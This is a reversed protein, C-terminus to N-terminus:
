VAKADEKLKIELRLNDKEIVEYGLNRLLRAEVEYKRKNKEKTSGNSSMEMARYHNRCDKHLKAVNVDGINTRIELDPKKSSKSSGKAEKAKFTRYQKLDDELHTKTHKKSSNKFKDKVKNKFSTKADPKSKKKSTKSSNKSDLDNDLNSKKSEMAVVKAQNDLYADSKKKKVKKKNKKPKIPKPDPNTSVAIPKSPPPTTSNEDEIIEINKFHERFFLAVLTLGELIGAAWTFAIGLKSTRNEFRASKADNTRIANSLAASRQKEIEAMTDNAKKAIARGDTVISGKWTMTSATKVNKEQIAIQKDFQANIKNEDVLQLDVTARSLFDVTMPTGRLSIFVSASVGAILFITVLTFTIQYHSGEKNWKRIVSRFFVEGSKLKVIEILAVLLATIGLSIYINSTTSLMTTCFFSAETLISFFVFLALAIKISVYMFSFRGTHTNPQEKVKNSARIKQEVKKSIDNM